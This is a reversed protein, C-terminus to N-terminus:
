FLYTYYIITNDEFTTRGPTILDRNETNASFFVGLVPGQGTSYYKIQSQGYNDGLYPSVGFESNISLLQTVDGDLRSNTRSFLQTISADGSQTLQSLFNSDTLRSIM